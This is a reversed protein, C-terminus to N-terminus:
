NHRLQPGAIPGQPQVVAYGSDPSGASRHDHALFSNSYPVALGVLITHREELERHGGSM